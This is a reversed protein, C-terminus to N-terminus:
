FGALDVDISVVADPKIFRGDVCPWDGHADIAIMLERARREAAEQGEFDGASIREGSTLRVFVNAKQKTESVTGASPELTIKVVPEADATTEVEPEPEPVPVVDPAAPEAPEVADLVPAIPAVPALQLGPTPPEPVAPAAEGETLRALEDAGIRGAEVALEAFPRGTEAEEQMTTAVEATTMLGLRVVQAELSPARAEAPPSPAPGGPSLPPENMLGSGRPASSLSPGSATPPSSLNLGSTTPPSSLNM